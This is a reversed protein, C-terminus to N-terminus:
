KGGNVFKEIAAKWEPGQRADNQALARVHEDAEPRLSTREYLVAVETRKEGANKLHIDIRTALLNGLAYVYQVHGGALDFDTLVWIASHEPGHEISFVAGEQDAAPVPYLFQPKWEPAWKREALAGFLPAATEYAVDLTFGFETRAHEAAGAACAAMTMAGLLRAM